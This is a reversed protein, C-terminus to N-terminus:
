LCRMRRNIDGIDRQPERQDEAWEITDEYEPHSPKSIVYMYHEFGGEGGVDEPPREGKRETLVPANVHDTVTKEKIIEHEWFDGFDYVYTCRDTKEFVDEITIESDSVARIGESELFGAYDAFDADTTNVIRLEPEVSFEYGHYNFWGFVEQIVEHLQGFSFYTPVQVRRWIDYKDLRLRIKLQYKEVSFIENWAEPSIGRMECLSRYFMENSVDLYNTANKMRYVSNALMKSLEPQYLSKEDIEDRFFPLYECIKNMYSVASRNSTKAFLAEGCNDLYEDIIDEKICERELTARIAERVRDGLRSFDKTKVGYLIVPYLTKRNMCVLAKKRGLDVLNVYWTYFGNEFGECEGTDAYDAKDIGLRDLVKKTCQLYM